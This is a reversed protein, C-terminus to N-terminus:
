PAPGWRTARPSSSRGDHTRIAAGPEPLQNALTPTSTFSLQPPSTRRLLFSLPATAHGTGGTSRGPSRAPTRRGPHAPSIPRVVPRRGPLVPVAIGCGAALGQGYGGVHGVLRGHGLQGPTGDLPETTDVDPDVVSTDVQEAQQLFGWGRGEPPAPSWSRRSRGRGPRAAPGTGRALGRPTNILLAETRGCRRM